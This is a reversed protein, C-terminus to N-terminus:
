VAKPYQDAGPAAVYQTQPKSRCMCVIFIICACCLLICLVIIGLLVLSSNALIGLAKSLLAGACFFADTTCYDLAGCKDDDTITYCKVVCKKMTTSWACKGAATTNCNAQTGSHCPDDTLLDCDKIFCSREILNLSLKQGKNNEPLVSMCADTLTTNVAGKAAICDTQNNYSSFVSTANDFTYYFDTSGVVTCTKTARVAEGVMLTTGDCVYAIKDALVATAVFSLALAKFM